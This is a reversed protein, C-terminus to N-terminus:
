KKFDKLRKAKELAVRTGNELLSKEASEAPFQDLFSEFAEALEVVASGLIQDFEFSCDSTRMRNGHVLDQQILDSIPNSDLAQIVNLSHDGAVFDRVSIKEFELDRFFTILNRIHM